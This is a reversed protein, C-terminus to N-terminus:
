TWKFLNCFPIYKRFTSNSPTEIPSSFSVMSLYPEASSATLSEFQSASPGTRLKGRLSKDESAGTWRLKLTPPNAYSSRVGKAESDQTKHRM